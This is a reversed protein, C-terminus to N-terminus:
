ARHHPWKRKHVALVLYCTQKVTKQFVSLVQSKLRFPRRRSMHAVVVNNYQQMCNIDYQFFVNHLFASTHLKTIVTRFHKEGPGGTLLLVRSTARMLKKQNNKLSIPPFFLRRHTATLKTAGVSLVRVFLRCNVHDANYLHQLFM